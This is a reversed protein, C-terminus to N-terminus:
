KKAKAAKAAEKAAEKEAKKKAKEVKKEEDRIKKNAESEAKKREYEADIEAQMRAASVGSSTIVKTGGGLDDGVVIKIPGAKPKEIKVEETKFKAWAEPVNRNAAM